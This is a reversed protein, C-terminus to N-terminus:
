RDDNWSSAGSTTAAPAYPAAVQRQPQGALHGYRILHDPTPMPDGRERRAPASGASLPRVPFRLTVLTACAPRGKGLDGALLPRAFASAVLFSGLVHVDFLRRVRKPDLELAPVYSGRIGHSTVLVDPASSQASAQALASEVASRDTVDLRYYDVGERAAISEDLDFVSM